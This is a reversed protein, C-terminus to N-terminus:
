GKWLNNNTPLLGLPSSSHKGGYLYCIFLPCTRRDKFLSHDPGKLGGFSVIADMRIDTPAAVNVLLALQADLLKATYSGALVVLLQMFHSLIAQPAHSRLYPIWIITDQNANGPYFITKLFISVVLDQLTQTKHQPDHQQRHVGSNTKWANQQMCQTHPITAFPNHRIYLPKFVSLSKEM